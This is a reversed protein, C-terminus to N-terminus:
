AMKTWFCAEDRGAGCLTGRVFGASSVLERIREGGGAVLLQRGHAGAFHHAACLLQLGAVDIDGAAGIDLTIREAEAFGRLLADKLQRVQAITVGEEVALTGARAKADFSWKAM